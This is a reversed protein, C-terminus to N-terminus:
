IHEIFAGCGPAYDFFLTSGPAAARRAATPLPALDWGISWTSWVDDVIVYGRGAAVDVRIQPRDIPVRAVVTVRHESGPDCRVADIGDRIVAALIALATPSM